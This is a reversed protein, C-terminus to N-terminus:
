FPTIRKINVIGTSKTINGYHDKTYYMWACEQINPQEKNGLDLEAIHIITGKKGSSGKDVWVEMGKEIKIKELFCGEFWIVNENGVNVLYQDEYGHEPRGKKIEQITGKLKKGDHLKAFVKDGIKLFM